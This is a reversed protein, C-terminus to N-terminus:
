MWGVNDWYHKVLAEGEGFWDPLERRLDDVNVGPQVRLGSAALPVSSLPVGVGAPPTQDDSLEDVDGARTRLYESGAFSGVFRSHGGQGIILRGFASDVADKEDEARPVAAPKKDVDESLPAYNYTEALLPHPQTSNAAHSKALAVELASIREHLQHKLMTPTYFM